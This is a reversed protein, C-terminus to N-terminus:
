RHILNGPILRVTGELSIYTYLSQRNDVRHRYEEMQVIYKQITNKM